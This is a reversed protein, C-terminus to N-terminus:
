SFGRECVCPNKEQHYADRDRQNIKGCFIAHARIVQWEEAIWSDCEAKGDGCPENRKKEKNEDKCEDVDIRTLSRRVEECWKEKRENKNCDARARIKQITEEEATDGVVHADTGQKM